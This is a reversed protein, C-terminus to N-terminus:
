TGIFKSTSRELIHMQVAGSRRRSQAISTYINIEILSLYFSVTLRIKITIAFNLSFESLLSLVEM